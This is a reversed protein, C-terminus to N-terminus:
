GSRAPLLEEYWQRATEFGDRLIACDVRYSLFHFGAEFLLRLYDRDRAVSGAVVGQAAAVRACEHLRELVKPHNLEGAV